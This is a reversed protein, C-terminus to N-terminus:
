AQLEKIVGTSDGHSDVKVGSCQLITLWVNNLPTEDPLIMNHGMKLNAGGGILITPCNQRMDLEFMRGRRKRRGSLWPQSSSRRRRGSHKASCAIALDHNALKHEIGTTQPTGSVVRVLEMLAYLSNQLAWQVEPAQSIVVADTGINPGLAAERYFVIWGVCFLM